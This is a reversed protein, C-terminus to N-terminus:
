SNKTSVVVSFADDMYKMRLHQTELGSFINEFIWFEEILHDIGSIDQCSQIGLLKQKLLTLASNFLKKTDDIISSVTSEPLSYAEKTKIIYLAAM